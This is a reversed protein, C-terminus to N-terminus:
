AVSNPAMKGNRFLHALYERIQQPGLRDPSQHFYGAFHEIARLYIRRTGQSYNRRELEELMM